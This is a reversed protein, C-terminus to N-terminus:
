SPAKESGENRRYQDNRILNRRGLDCAAIELSAVVCLIDFFGIHGVFADCCCETLQIDLEVMARNMSQGVAIRILNFVFKLLIFKLHM